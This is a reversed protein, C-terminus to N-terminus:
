ESSQHWDQQKVWEDHTVFMKQLGGYVERADWFEELLAFLREVDQDECEDPLENRVINRALASWSFNNGWGLKVVLWERFGALIGGYCASDCGQIFAVVHDFSTLPIYMGPRKRFDELLHPLSM